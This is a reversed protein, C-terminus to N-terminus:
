EPGRKYPLFTYGPVPRVRGDEHAYLKIGNAELQDILVERTGSVANYVNTPIGNVLLWLLYSAEKSDLEIRMPIPDTYVKM